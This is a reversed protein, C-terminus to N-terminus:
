ETKGTKGGGGTGESGEKAFPCGGPPPGIPRPPAPIFNVPGLRRMENILDGMSQRRVTSFTSYLRTLRRGGCASCRRRWFGWAGAKEMLATVAGCKRCRYEYIPMRTL